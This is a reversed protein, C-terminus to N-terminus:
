AALGETSLQQTAQLSHNAPRRPPDVSPVTHGGKSFLIASYEAHMGEFGFYGGVGSVDGGGNLVATEGARINPFFDFADIPQADAASYIRFAQAGPLLVFDGAELRVPEAAGEIDLWCSGSQIAYCKIGDGAGFALVWDGGADLGRFGYSNPRLLSLIDSLPAM